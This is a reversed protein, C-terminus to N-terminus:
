LLTKLMELEPPAGKSILYSVIQLHNNKWALTLAKSDLIAKAEVLLRVVELFGLECALRMPLSGMANPNVDNKLLLQVTPINNGRISKLLGFSGFNLLSLKRELLCTLLEYKEQVFVEKKFVQKPVPVGTYDVTFPLEPTAASLFPGVQPGEAKHRKNPKLNFEPKGCFDRKPKSSALSLVGIKGKPLKLALYKEFFLLL